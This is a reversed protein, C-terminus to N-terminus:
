VNNFESYDSFQKYVKIEETEAIYIGLGMFIDDQSKIRCITGDTLNQPKQRIRNADLAGGNSFRKAQPPTVKIEDYTVFLSETPLLVENPSLWQDLLIMGYIHDAVNSWRHYVERERTMFSGRWMHFMDDYARYGVRQGSELIQEIFTNNFFRKLYHGRERSDPHDAFFAAIEIRNDKLADSTRLLENKERDHHYFEM